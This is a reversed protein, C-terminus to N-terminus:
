GREGGGNGDGGLETAASEGAGTLAAEIRQTPLKRADDDKSKAGLGTGEGEGCLRRRAGEDAAAGARRVAGEDGSRAQM